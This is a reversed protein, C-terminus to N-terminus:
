GASPPLSLKPPVGFVCPFMNPVVWEPEVPVYPGDHKPVSSNAVTYKLYVCM